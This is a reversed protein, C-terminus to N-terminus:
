ITKIPCRRKPLVEELFPLLEKWRLVGNGAKLQQEWYLVHDKNMKMTYKTSGYAEGLSTGARLDAIIVGIPDLPWLVSTVALFDLFFACMTDLPVIHAVFLAEHM